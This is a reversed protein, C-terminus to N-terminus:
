LQGRVAGKAFPSTHLNLYFSNPNAALADVKADTVCLGILGNGKPLATASFVVEFNRLYDRRASCSGCTPSWFSTGLV